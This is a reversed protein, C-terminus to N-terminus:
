LLQKKRILALKKIKILQTDKITELTIKNALSEISYEDELNLDKITKDMVEPTTIQQRYTEINMSPYQSIADLMNELNGTDINNNSLSDSANSAMLIMEAEYTPKLIFFSFVVSILIALATIGAILNKRKILIEILERLSIEEMMQNENMLMDEM